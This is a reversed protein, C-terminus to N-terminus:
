AFGWSETKPGDAQLVATSPVSLAHQNQACSLSAAADGVVIVHRVKLADRRQLDHYRIRSLIERADIIHQAKGRRLRSQLLLFTHDFFDDEQRLGLDGLQAFLCPRWFRWSTLYSPGLSMFDVM